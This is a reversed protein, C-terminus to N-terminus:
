TVFTLGDKASGTHPGQIRLSGSCSRTRQGRPVGGFVELGILAVRQRGLCQTGGDIWRSQSEHWPVTRISLLSRKSLGMMAQALPKKSCRTLNPHSARARSNSFSGTSSRAHRAHWSRSLRSSREGSSNPRRANTSAPRRTAYISAPSTSSTALSSTSRFPGASNRHGIAVLQCHLLFMRSHIAKQTALWVPKARSVLADQVIDAAQLHATEEPRGCPPVSAPVHNRLDARVPM